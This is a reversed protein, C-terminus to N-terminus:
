GDVSERTGFAAAALLGVAVAAVLNALGDPSGSGIRPSYVAAIGSVLVLLGGTAAVVPAPLWRRRAVLGALLALALVAGGLAVFAVLGASSLGLVVGRRWTPTGISAPAQPRLLDLLLLFALAVVALGGIVLAARYTKGPPYSVEVRGGAGAPIVFGQQWGDVVVPRLATAGLTARWGASMNQGFVLVADRGPGVQMVAGDSVETAARVARAPGPAVAGASRSRLMVKIPTFIDTADVTLVQEGPTLQVPGDCSRWRLPQGRVIDGLTGIVRTRHLQGNVRVDPGLGCETPLGFGLPVDRALGDLGALRLEGIGVPRSAGQADPHAHFTVRAASAVLPEFYGLAGAGLPVVRTEGGAQIVAEYPTLAGVLSGDVQIRDIRRRQGWDLELSPALQGPSALWPTDSRGDVAFMGSVSPDNGLVSDATAALGPGLPLLTRATAEGPLAVVRGRLRWSGSEHVTFTRRVRGQEAGPRASYVDCSPGVATAVCARRPAESTFLFSTGADAGSDPVVLTRAIDLGEVDIDRIAVTAAPDNGAVSEITVRLRASRPAEDFNAVVRGTTQDVPFSRRDAGVQLAVRTVPTGSFGDVGLLVTVRGIRRPERLDLQVWQGRARHFPASRWYTAPDGDVASAPGLEPRIQGVSDAFGSSTSATVSRATSYEAYVRSVGPVGAFDVIKRGGREGEDRTMVQSTADHFRGFQRIVRRYGDTVIDPASGEDPEGVRAHQDPALLGVERAAIVDEPAGTLLPLDIDRVTEPRGTADQVRYVEIMPGAGGDLTGFTRALTLGRSNALAAAVRSPDAVDAALVDIDRRVLVRTVGAAALTAALAPSGSGDELRDEIGDLWRITAPPVLPIQTRAVWASAALGQIPEDVTWGWTQQGFGTSPLVLTAGPGDDDLWATAQQWATPIRDWGPHRLSNEFVPTAGGVVVLIAAAAGVAQLRTAGLWAPSVRWSRAVARVRTEDALYAAVAVCVVGFGIALPLRVLPDFKHVNRFASLPGDLLDRVPGALPTGAVGGHGVTLVLLGALAALGFPFRLPMRPLAVGVLGVGAVLGGLIILVPRTSMAYAGAWWPEGGVFIYNLWHETGRVSNSWGTARTTALATEIYDLFPPSYKGLLLLPLMWWLCALATCAAWWGALRRGARSGLGTAVLLFPLPLTALNEAANVGGMCVVAIGALVAARRASMRGSLALVLPLCVWPLLASPVIEGTLAGSLGVIRPSLAYVLGVIVPVTSSGVGLARALRRAGDYAVLLVLASWLRQAIWDPVGALDNLVFWTGQPFLYGYAQNQLGGFDIESGWLTLSRALARAPDATLDFKTDFTTEGARQLFSVVVLFLCAAGHL